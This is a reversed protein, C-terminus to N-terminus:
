KMHFPIMAIPLFVLVLWSFSWWCIQLSRSNTDELISNIREMLRGGADGSEEADLSSWGFAACVEPQMLPASVVALLSEALVLPDVQQTAFQDARLERLILLEQWLAETHPLWFTLRRIWGLWFFWFTDRYELHAQEHFLVANLHAADLQDLLGQSVVLEPQWFGVRASYLDTIPLLYASHDAIEIKPHTQIHKLTQFGENALKILSAIAWVIFGIALGYSLWGEGHGVMQGFPGMCGIAIATMLLLLPAFLFQGLSQQWRESWTGVTPSWRSRVWWAVGVGIALMFFHM